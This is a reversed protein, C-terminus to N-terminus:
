QQQETKGRAEDNVPELTGVDAATVDQTEISDVGELEPEAPGTTLLSKGGMARAVRALDQKLDFLGSEQEIKLYKRALGRMQNEVPQIQAQLAVREERLPTTISEIRKIEAQIEDFHQQMFNDVRGVLPSRKIVEAEGAEDQNQESM